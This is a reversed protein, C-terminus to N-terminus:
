GRQARFFDVTRSIGDEFSVQPAWGWIARARSADQAIQKIDGPREPALVPPATYGVARAIADFVGRTSTPAGTGINCTAAEYQAARVAADVVDEVYVYDRLQSGDGYITCPEGALMRQAFIAVVGAEGHPDQWPGYINGPRVVSLQMGSDNTVIALYRETALKSAGYVSEPRAPYDEGIPIVEPAGFLAGGTSFFVFRGTGAAMAAQALQISAIVNAQVDGVPDRMSIVVSAQAALHYVVAPRVDEIARRVAEGDRLDVELFRAGEPIGRRSAVMDLGVAEVGDALLRRWLHGGVFGAAGTVLARGSAGGTQTVRVGEM